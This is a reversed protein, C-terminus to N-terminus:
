HAGGGRAGAVCALSDRGQQVSLLVHRRFSSLITHLSADHSIHFEGRENVTFLSLATRVKFGDETCFFPKFNIVELGAPKGVDELRQLHVVSLQLTLVFRSIM